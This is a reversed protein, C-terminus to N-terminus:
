RGSSHKSVVTAEEAPDHERDQPSSPVSFCECVCVCSIGVLESREEGTTDVLSKHGRTRGILREPGRIRGPPREATGLGNAQNFASFDKRNDAATRM